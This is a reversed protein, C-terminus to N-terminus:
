GARQAPSQDVSQSYQFLFRQFVLGLTPYVLLPMLILTFLTRRDRLTERLEKRILRLLREGPPSRRFSTGGSENPLIEFADSTPDASGPEDVTM